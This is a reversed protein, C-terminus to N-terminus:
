LGVNLGVTYTTPKPYDFFTQGQAFANGYTTVEPDNGTFKTSLFFNQVSVYVRLKNLHMRQIMSPAFTYALSANRGRIFSGDELWHTDVNTVYGAAQDRIAAIPTNQNSPTWANLVSAFSNAQVQRDEGSHHTMNLVDNGTSFQIDLILEFRKYKFNNSFSGWAKPNGNGIIMRDKDTIATDGNVDLYRIDGPLIPKGGRYSVFRAAEAADKTGWTGLRVLGWFSGVPQGVRIIGTQNTFNPNGVGFIDDPTALSLVKNRNFSINFSTTWTFDANTINVTNLGLELGKNEMSGINKRITAYGSSGPVPADLLMDTTKRYYVDAEVLIRNRLLGIELGGDYQATKEWKLDPNALRSIGIGTVRSGGIIATSTGLAPLATYAPIESNGTLGYSTRLKLHSIVENDKLFDEDSVRWALGASPFFAYKTNEGFKSSGDVRGTLTLLYKGKYGYNVRGFYSNFAFRSRSSGYSPNSSGAGINNYQFFDTSFNETGANINFINTEQWSMGLLGTFSHNKAFTRNYTLYNELSWYTERGNSVSAVGSQGDSIGYLRRAAYQNIGRTVISTGFVTRMELGKALNINSYVDGITTQTNVILKRDTLIHVPNSGGEAWPILKNDGWTGDALKVPLFPFAETIMRVSNLGGTGQDVINEEQNYYGLHGGVRLWPQMKSEFNFRGSYRKMYSNLLLGENDQYGLFIGYTNNESGGTFSLQHNQSPKHQVSEKLWDTNYLPNGNSDFFQPLAIRANKPVPTSNYAGAAWGVPDYVKINDYALDQVKVYEQANLMKVRHPGIEVQSVNVDYNVRGPGPVGHKTTLLIVGNAGRAGYIATASADKLVEISAVDNFNIFDVANSNQTQTGVPLVVGDLVYLPNNTSNISSFGRIRVNTQGGPRGSNTNVQVGPIRGALAENISVAAAREQLAAGRVVGVAGTLDSKKQTGYGVVVVEGLDRNRGPELVISIQSNSGTKIEQSELGVSSIVLVTSNGTVSLSFRGDEDTVTGTQTGKITVSAHALPAGDKGTVRGTIIRSQSFSLFSILLLSITQLGAKLPRVLLEKM